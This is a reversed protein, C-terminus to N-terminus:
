VDGELKICENHEKVYADFYLENKVGNYTVEFYRGDPEDTSLLLKVHHLTKCYWVEYIDEVLLHKQNKEIYYNVILQKAKHRIDKYDM